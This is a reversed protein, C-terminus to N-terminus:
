KKRMMEARATKAWEIRAQAEEPSCTNEILREYESKKMNALRRAHRAGREAAAYILGIMGLVGVLGLTLALGLLASSM